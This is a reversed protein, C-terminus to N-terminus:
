KLTKFWANQVESCETKNGFDWVGMSEGIGSLIILIFLYFLGYFGKINYEFSNRKNKNPLFEM